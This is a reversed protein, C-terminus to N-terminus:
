RQRRRNRKEQRARELAARDSPGLEKRNFVWLRRWRRQRRLKRQEAETLDEPTLLRKWKLLASRDVSRFLRFLCSGPRMVHAAAFDILSVRGTRTVLINDRGRLDLHVVGHRHLTDVLATLADVVPRKPGPELRVHTLRRGEVFDVILTYPDPRAHLGPVGDIGELRRYAAAEKSIQHRGIWRVPMSKRAFTKVVLSHGRWPIQFVDAKIWRGRVLTTAGLSELDELRPLEELPTGM